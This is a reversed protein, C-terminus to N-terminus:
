RGPERASQMTREVAATVSRQVSPEPLSRMARRIQDDLQGEDRYGAGLEKLRAVVRKRALYVANRSLGTLEAARTGSLEHVAVLEFAQYTEPSVERRVVDLLAALVSQDFAAEWAEDPQPEDAAPEVLGGDTDGGRARVRESPRRRHEAVKNRVLTRLWDRFRGRAPDYRFVDRRRFVTLMTEQVVEEATQRGCGRGRAAVYILRWYRRFFEDWALTGSGDRLRNLLTPQTNSNM